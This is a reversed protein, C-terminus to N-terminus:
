VSGSSGIGPLGTSPSGILNVTLTSGQCNVEGSTIGMVTFYIKLQVQSIAAAAFETHFECSGINIQSHPPYINTAKFFIVLKASGIRLRHPLIYLFDRMGM